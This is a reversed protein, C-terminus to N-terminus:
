YQQTTSYLQTQHLSDLSSWYTYEVSFRKLLEQINFCFLEDAIITM